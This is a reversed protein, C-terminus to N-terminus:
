FLGNINLVFIAFFYTQGSVEVTAGAPSVELVTSLYVSRNGYRGSAGIPRAVAIHNNNAVAVM